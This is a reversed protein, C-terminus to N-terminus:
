NPTHNSLDSDKMELRSLRYRRRPNSIKKRKKRPNASYIKWGDPGQNIKALDLFERFNEVLRKM